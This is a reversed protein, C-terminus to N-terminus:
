EPRQTTTDLLGTAQMLQALAGRTKCRLRPLLPAVLPSGVLLAVRVVAEVDNLLRTTNSMQSFALDGGLLVVVSPQFIQGPPVRIHRRWDLFMKSCQLGEQISRNHSTETIPGLLRVHDHDFPTKQSVFHSSKARLVLILLCLSNIVKMRESIDAFHPLKNSARIPHSSVEKRAVSSSHLNQTLIHLWSRHKWRFAKVVRLRSVSCSTLRYLADLQETFMRHM